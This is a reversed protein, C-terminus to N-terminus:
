RCTQQSSWVPNAGSSNQEAALSQAIRDLEEVAGIAEENTVHPKRRTIEGARFSLEKDFGVLKSVYLATALRELEIVGKDALRTSVFEIRPHFHGIRESCLEVYDRGRGSVVITPGFPFRPILDLYGDARLASIHDRLDFSFPGHKYLIFTFGMQVDCLEQLFYSAKQIHTEGCWSGRRGLSGILSLLIANRTDGDLM